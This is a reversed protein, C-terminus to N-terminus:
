WDFVILLDFLSFHNLISIMMLECIGGGGGKKKGNVIVSEIFVLVQTLGWM